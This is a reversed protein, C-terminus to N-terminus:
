RGSHQVLMQMMKQERIVVYWASSGVSLELERRLRPDHVICPGSCVRRSPWKVSAEAAFVLGDLRMEMPVAVAAVSHM